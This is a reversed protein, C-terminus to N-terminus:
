RQQRMRNVIQVLDIMNETDIQQIGLSAAIYCGTRGVGASCHVLIPSKNNNNTNSNLEEISNPNFDFSFHKNVNTNVSTTQNDISLKRNTAEVQKILQILADPNEPVNHDPWTTYWYHYITRTENFYKLLFPFSM